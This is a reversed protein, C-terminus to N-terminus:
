IHTPDCTEDIEPQPYSLTTIHRGYLLHAPTLAECDKIDSSPYTLPRDNLIAEIESIVTNLTEM